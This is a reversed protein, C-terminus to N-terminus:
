ILVHDISRAELSIYKSISYFRDCVLLHSGTIFFFGCNQYPGIAMQAREFRGSFLLKTLGLVRIITAVGQVEVFDECLEAGVHKTMGANFYGARKPGGLDLM